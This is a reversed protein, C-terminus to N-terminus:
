RNDRGRVAGRASARRGRAQLFRRCGSLGVTQRGAGRGPTSLGGGTEVPGRGRLAVRPEAAYQEADRAHLQEIARGVIGHLVRRRAPLIGGHAIEWVSDHVFGFGEDISQMVGRRVLEEMAEAAELAPMESAAQLLAFDCERQIIAAAAVLRKAHPSLRDLRAGILERVSQSVSTPRVDREAGPDSLSRLIETAVYPNGRSITWVQEAATSVRAVSSGVQLRRATLQATAALSLPGPRLVRCHRERELNDLVTGLVTGRAADDLRTTAILFVPMSAVRHAVFAALRLSSEDAWHLDEITLVVARARSLTELVQVVAEFLALPEPSAAPSSPAALEPLLRSLEVRWVPALTEIQRTDAAIGGARLLDAWPGFPLVQTSAHSRGSMACPRLAAIEAVAADLLATKGIGAEGAILLVQGSGRAVAAAAERIARLEAERDFLVPAHSPALPVHRAPESAATVLTVRRQMIAEYPRKTEAEPEVALERRLVDVCTQYQRLAAAHRGHEAYLRMLARHVAEQLPDLTLLRVATRMADDAEDQRSSPRTQFALLRALTDVATERLRERELLLWEEFPPANLTLGELLDGRYCDAAARWDDPSDSASLREFRVVDVNVLDPQVAFAGERQILVPVGDVRLSRRLSAVVQRLSDRARADDAEGWLVATLKDRLHFTGPRVALYAVLARAKLPLGTPAADFGGLLDVRIPLSM